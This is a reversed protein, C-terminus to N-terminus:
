EVQYWNGNEDKMDSHKTGTDWDFCKRVDGMANVECVERSVPKDNIDRTVSVLMTRGKDVFM